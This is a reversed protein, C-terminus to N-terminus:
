QFLLGSQAPGSFNLCPSSPFVQVPFCLVQVWVLGSWFMGSILEFGNRHRCTGSPEHMAPGILRALRFSSCSPHVNNAPIRTIVTEGNSIIMELNKFKIQPSEPLETSPTPNPVNQKHRITHFTHWFITQLHAKHVQQPDFANRAQLEHKKFSNSLKAEIVGWRDAGLFGDLAYFRHKIINFMKFSTKVKIDLFM